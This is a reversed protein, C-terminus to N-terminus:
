APEDPKERVRDPQAKRPEEVFRVERLAMGLKYLESLEQLRREVQEPSPVDALSPETVADYSACSPDKSDRNTAM